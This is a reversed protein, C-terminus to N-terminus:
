RIIFVSDSSPNTIWAEGVTAVKTAGVYGTIFRSQGAGTGSLIAIYCGNYLSNTGSAGTDLTITSAGGAQATGLRLYTQGLTSVISAINSEIGTITSNAVVQSAIESSTLRNDLSFAGVAGNVTVGDITAASLVVTYNNGATYFGASSSTDIIALHVGTLSDFDEMDTVGTTTQTTSSGKYVSITGNTARTVSAGTSSFTNWMMHVTDGVAFDGYYPVM